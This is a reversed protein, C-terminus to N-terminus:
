LEVFGNKPDEKKKLSVKSRSAPTFGLESLQRLMINKLANQLEVAPNIINHGKKEDFILMGDRQIEKELEIIKGQTEAWAALVSFDLSSLMEKPAQSVAFEWMDRATENLHKPPEIQALFVDPVPENENTRCPQLTGQLKKIATPKRPRAM